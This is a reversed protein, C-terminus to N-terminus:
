RGRTLTLVDISTRSAVSTGARWFTRRLAGVVDVRADVPLAKARSIIGRKTSACDLTDHRGAGDSVIIRFTVLESGDTLTRVMVASIRGSIQVSNTDATSNDDKSKRGSTAMRAQSSTM